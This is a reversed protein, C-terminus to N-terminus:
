PQSLDRPLVLSFFFLDPVRHVNHGLVHFCVHYILPLPALFHPHCTGASDLLPPLGPLSSGTLSPSIQVQATAPVSTQARFPSRCIAHPWGPAPVEGIDAEGAAQTVRRYMARHLHTLHIIIRPVQAAEQHSM